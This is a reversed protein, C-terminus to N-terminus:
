RPKRKNKDPKSIPSFTFTLFQAEMQAQQRVSPDPGSSFTARSKVDTGSGLALRKGQALVWHSANKRTGSGLALRNGQPLNWHSATEQHCDWASMQTLPM